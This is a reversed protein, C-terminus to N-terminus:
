KFPRNTRFSNAKIPTERTSKLAQEPFGNCCLFKGLYLLSPHTLREHPLMLESQLEQFNYRTVLVTERFENDIHAIHFKQFTYLHNGDPKRVDCIGLM